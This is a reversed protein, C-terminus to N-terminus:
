ASVLPLLLGLVPLAAVAAATALVLVCDRRPLPAPPHLLRGARVLVGSTGPGGSGGVGLGGAPAQARGVKWLAQALVRGDHHRAARDDALMEVLLAVQEQACRVAPLWPFTAGLAVFPLVVLDHRQAVHAREHALVARVEDEGLSTLVGRSMVVRPRLGPLCYAVPLDHDVVLAGHLLPNRTGVLDVLVRHRHRSWLTRGASVLLVYLLRTFVALSVGAAAWAWWPLLGALEAPATSLARTLAAPHTDGLPALAATATAELALLGGALGVAQWLVLACSPSRPPWGATALRPAAVVVLLVLVAALVVATALM